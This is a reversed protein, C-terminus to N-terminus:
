SGKDTNVIEKRGYDFGFGCKGTPLNEVFLVICVESWRNLAKGDRKKEM